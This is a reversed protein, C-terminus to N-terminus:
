LSISGNAVMVGIAARRDADTKIGGPCGIVDGIPLRMFMFGM